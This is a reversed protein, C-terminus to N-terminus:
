HRHLSGRLEGWLREASRRLEARSGANDVVHDAVPGDLGLKRHLEVLGRATEESLGRATLRRIRTEAPATVLVCCHVLKRGGMRDLVAAEVAVIRDSADAERLRELRKRLWGLMAPHTLEDLRERLGEDRFILEGLAARDLTGDDRRFRSGFVGLVQELLETGPRLLERSADDARITIAGLRELEALLASKGSGAPGVVGVVLM